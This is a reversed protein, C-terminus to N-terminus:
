LGALLRGRPAHSAPQVDARQGDVALDDGDRQGHVLLRRQGGFRHAVSQLPRVVWLQAGHREHVLLEGGARPPPRAGGHVGAGGRARAAARADDIEGPAPAFAPPSAPLPVVGDPPSLGPVARGICKTRGADAIAKDNAPVILQFRCTGVSSDIEAAYTGPPVDDFYFEGQRGLPSVKDEAGAHVLMQGFSPNVDTGGLSMVVSGTVAQLRAVDFRAVAGGRLPPALLRETSEIKFDMSLDEDAISIRNAYYPIMEPVLLDGNADTRGVEQNNIYGRVGSRGPVEILGFGQDVPRTAFAHGGVAVLAGSATLVATDHGAIREVSGEYRGYASQAQGDALFDDVPGVSARVRYGYGPGVPLSRQVEAGGTGQSGEQDYFASATARDPLAVSLSAFVEYLPRTMTDAATRTATAFLNATEHVRVNALLGVQNSDGADRYRALAARLTVSLRPGLTTGAFVNAAGTPRDRSAPLTLNAYRASYAQLLAGASLTARLYTYSLSAAAGGGAASQRSAAVDAEVDGVATRM